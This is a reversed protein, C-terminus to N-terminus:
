GPFTRNKGLFSRNKRLDTCIQGPTKQPKKLPGNLTKSKKLTAVSHLIGFVLKQRPRRSNNGFARTLSPFWGLTVNAYTQMHRAYFYLNRFTFNVIAASHFAESLAVYIYM